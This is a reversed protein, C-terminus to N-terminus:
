VRIPARESPEPGEIGSVPLQAGTSAPARTHAGDEGDGLAVMRQLTDKLLYDRIGTQRHPGRLGAFQRFPAPATPTILPDLIPSNKRM